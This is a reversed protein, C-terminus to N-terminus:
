KAKKTKQARGTSSQKAAKAPSHGDLPLGFSSHREALFVLREIVDTKDQVPGPMVTALWGPPSAVLKDLRDLTDEYFRFAVPVKKVM